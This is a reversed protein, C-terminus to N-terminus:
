QLSGRKRHTIWKPPEPIYITIVIVKNQYKNYGVLAHIPGKGLLLYAKGRIDDESTELVEGELITRLINREPIERLFLRDKAHDSYHYKGKRALARIEEIEM